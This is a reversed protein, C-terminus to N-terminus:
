NVPHCVNEQDGSERRSRLGTCQYCSSLLTVNYISALRFINRGKTVIMNIFSVTYAGGGTTHYTNILLKLTLSVCLIPTCFIIVSLYCYLYSVVNIYETFPGGM